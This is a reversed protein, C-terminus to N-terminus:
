FSIHKTYTKTSQWTKTPRNLDSYSYRFHVNFTWTIDATSNSTQMSSKSQNLITVNRTASGLNPNLVTENSPHVSADYIDVKIIEGGLTRARTVQHNYSYKM